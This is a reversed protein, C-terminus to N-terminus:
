AVACARGPANRVAAVRDAAQNANVLAAGSGIDSQRRLPAPRPPRDARRSRQLRADPASLCGSLVFLSSRGELFDEGSLVTSRRNAYM